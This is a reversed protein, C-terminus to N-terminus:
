GSSRRTAPSDSLPEPSAEGPAGRDLEVRWVGYREADPGSLEVRQLFRPAEGRLLRSHLSGETAGPLLPLWSGTRCLAIYRIGRARLREGIEMDDRARMIDRSALIGQSNRHYPTAVVDLETRYLIEPGWFIPALIITGPETRDTLM